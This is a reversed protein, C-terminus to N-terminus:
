RRCQGAHGWFNFNFSRPLLPETAISVDAASRGEEQPAEDSLLVAHM